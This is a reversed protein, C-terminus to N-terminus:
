RCALLQERLHGDIPQDGLWIAFLAASFDAGQVVGLRRGNRALETGRGPVYTLAYRDGPAVDEYLANLHEIPARLDDFAASGTNREIGDITAKAFRDASISWFYEIELRRAVDGLVAPGAETGCPEPLYFAAVYGKILLRYRQLGIGRLHLETKGATLREAFQVGEIEAALAGSQSLLAAVLVVAARAFSSRM